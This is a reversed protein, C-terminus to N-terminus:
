GKKFEMPGIWKLYAKAMAFGSILGIITGGVIDLPYHKYIDNQIQHM